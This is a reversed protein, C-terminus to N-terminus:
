QGGLKSREDVLLVDLGAQAATITASLGAPGGGIVLVDPAITREPLPSVVANALPAAPPQTDVIMAPSVATMCALRSPVGDVVVACEHCVGMGCFVGRQDGRATTRCALLGADVMASAITDGLAAGVEHGDFTVQIPQGDPEIGDIHLRM